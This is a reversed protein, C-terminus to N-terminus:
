GHAAMALPDEFEVLRASQVEVKLTRAVTAVYVKSAGARRLVRACESATTGTTLVDDVLLVDRSAIESPNVVAFAGRMNERRQHRSLGIQSQTERLRELVNANLEFKGSRLLKLASRAVLEAQNFGRQRLKKGFLPVPIVVVSGSVFSLPLDSIAEALMRGLVAAAPRVRDYKLLHILDRLGGEYSGYAAAKAYPPQARRCLGCMAESDTVAYRTTLQEGCVSCVVGDIRNLSSLCRECVPLRSINTLPNRCLRCDDPFMIAFLANAVHGIGTKLSSVLSSSRPLVTVGDTPSASKSSSFVVRGRRAM